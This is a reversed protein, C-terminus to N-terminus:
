QDVYIDSTLPNMFDEDNKNFDGFNKNDFQQQIVGFPLDRKRGIKHPDIRGFSVPLNVVRGKLSDLGFLTELEALTQDSVRKVRYPKAHIHQLNILLLVTALLVAFRKFTFM